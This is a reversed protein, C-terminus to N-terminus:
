SLNNQGTGGGKKAKILVPVHRAPFFLRGALLQFNGDQPPLM